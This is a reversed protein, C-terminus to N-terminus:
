QVYESYVSNAIVIRELNGLFERKAQASKLYHLYALKFSDLTSAATGFKWLLYRQLPVTTLLSKLNPSIDLGAVLYNTSYTSLCISGRIFSWVEEHNSHHRPLTAIEMPKDAECMSENLQRECQGYHIRSLEFWLLVLKCQLTANELRYTLWTHYDSQIASDDVLNHQLFSEVIKRSNNHTCNVLSKTDISYEIETSTTCITIHPLLRLLHNNM